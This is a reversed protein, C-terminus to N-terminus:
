VPIMSGMMLSIVAFGMIIVFIAVIACMVHFALELTAKAFNKAAIKASNNFRLM